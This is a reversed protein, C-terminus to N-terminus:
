KTMEIFGENGQPLTKLYSTGTRRDLRKGKRKKRKNKVLTIM